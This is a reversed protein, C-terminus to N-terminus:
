DAAAAARKRITVPDFYTRYLSLLTDTYVDYEEDDDVATTYRLTQRDAGAAGGLSISEV